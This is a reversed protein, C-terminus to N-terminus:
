RSKRERKPKRGNGLHISTVMLTDIIEVHDDTSAVVISRGSPLFMLFEPHPVRYERGDAVRITFPKFPEARHYGRIEDVRM